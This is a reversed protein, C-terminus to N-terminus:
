ASLTHLPPPWFIAFNQGRLQQIGGYRDRSVIQKCFKRPSLFIRRMMQKQLTKKNRDRYTDWNRILLASSPPRITLWDRYDVFCAFAGRNVSLLWIATSCPLVFYLSQLSVVLFGSQWSPQAIKVSHLCSFLWLHLKWKIYHFNHWAQRKCLM